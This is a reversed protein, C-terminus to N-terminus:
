RLSDTSLPSPWWELHPTASVVVRPAWRASPRCVVFAAFFAATVLSVSATLVVRCDTDFGRRSYM